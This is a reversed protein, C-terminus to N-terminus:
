YLRSDGAERTVHRSQCTRTMRFAIDMERNPCDLADHEVGDSVQLSCTEYSVWWVGIVHPPGEPSIENWSPISFDELKIVELVGENGRGYELESHDYVRNPFRVLLIAM